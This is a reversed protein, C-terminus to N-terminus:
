VYNVRGKELEEKAKYLIRQSNRLIDSDTESMFQWKDRVNMVLFVAELAEVLEENQTKLRDIEMGTNMAISNSLDSLCKNRQELQKIRQLLDFVDHMGNDSM